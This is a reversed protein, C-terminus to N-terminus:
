YSIIKDITCLCVTCWWKRLVTQNRSSPNTSPIL